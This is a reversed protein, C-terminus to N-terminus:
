LALVKLIVSGLEFAVGGLDGVSVGYMAVAFGM